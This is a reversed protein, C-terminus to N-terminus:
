VGLVTQMDTSLIGGLGTNLVVCTVLFFFCLIKTGHPWIYILLYSSLFIWRKDIRCTLTKSVMTRLEADTMKSRAYGFITFHQLCGMHMKIEFKMMFYAHITKWSFGFCLFPCISFPLYETISILITDKTRGLICTPSM